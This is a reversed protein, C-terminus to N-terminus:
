GLKQVKTRSKSLEEVLSLSIWQWIYFSNDSEGQCYKEWVNLVSKKDFWAGSFNSSVQKIHDDAWDRLENRLWERQPTQVPRKPSLSLRDPVLRKAIKRLMKKGVGDCIKRETPQRLALEFMRHDLFPERLETSSRMSIRDNFRMARPIKTFRTDRYQLNRVKDTFVNPFEATEALSSFEATLCEPRVPKEKTGQIISIDNESMASQYYDYGAWQEDMGNGDLLVIVGNERAKEFLKAYALTPIGGFPEDQYYQVDMALEPVEKASLKSVILSHNTKALMQGVWPLEDYNPDGTIFTFAKVNTNYGQINHVMGLLTSSDLGGSLNIGVPVDSRFRFKVSEKLLSFYEEEVEAEPRQDFEDGVKEAIDYWRSIETKDNKWVLKHGPPLSNINKWFTRNSHPYHGYTLYSAWTKEDPEKPIGASHIAKIESAIILTGDSKQHYYLPKVGFRDRAAFATKKANDWIVFSFMGVLHDLFDVGWKEYAALLVETDSQTRFCFESELRCKLELFNYIEGNFIIQLNGSRSEMPQRGADSLDIISLRRHGLGAISKPDTYIGETDPGRHQQVFLMNQLQDLSWDKGFIAAIGCM